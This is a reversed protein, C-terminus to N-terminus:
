AKGARAAAVAARINGSPAIIPVVCGTGLIFKKGETQKIADLSEAVVDTSTGLTLTEIQRMGGCVVGPFISKGAALTPPSQRDHWNIIQVPLDSAESFMVNEGHLHLINLWLDNVANLIESAYNKEFLRFESANVLEKQAFQIAYFIGDINLKKCEQIFSLTSLCIQKLGESVMGPANKIHDLLRGKGALNKAQSMPSFITQVIPTNQDFESRVLRICELQQNLYGKKPDLQKLHKWDEPEKIVHHEYERTGEYNGKWADTVGWDRTCFSSAPTIKIFDFDFLNQFEFISKALQDPSQDDVPFHRWLSVPIADSSNGELCLELRQRHNYQIQKKLSKTM